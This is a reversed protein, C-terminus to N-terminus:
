QNYYFRFTFYAIQIDNQHEIDTYRNRNYIIFYIEFYLLGEITTKIRANAM